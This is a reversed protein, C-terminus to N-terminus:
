FNVWSQQIPEQAKHVVEFLYAENSGEITTRVDSAQNWCVLSHVSPIDCINELCDSGSQPDNDRKENSSISGM